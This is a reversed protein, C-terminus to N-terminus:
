TGSFGPATSTTDAVEGKPMSVPMVPLYSPVAAHARTDLPVGVPQMGPDYPGQGHFASAARSPDPPVVAIHDIATRPTGSKNLVEDVVSLLMGAHGAKVTLDIECATLGDRLLAVSLCSTSTDLALVQM